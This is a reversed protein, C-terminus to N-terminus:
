KYVADFIERVGGSNAPNDRLSWGRLECRNHPFSKNFNGMVILDVYLNNM